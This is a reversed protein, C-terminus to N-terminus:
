RHGRKIVKVLTIEKIRTSFFVGYPVSLKGYLFIFKKKTKIPTSFSVAVMLAKKWSTSIITMWGVNKPSSDSTEITNLIHNFENKM